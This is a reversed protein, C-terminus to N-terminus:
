QPSAEIALALAEGGGICIAAMGRKLGRARLAYLLTTLIRAGSAGIPHGLACAGGNVNVREVPLRLAQIAALTVVAFAENIEFLDVSEFTWGCAQELKQLAEVPALTFRQPERAHAAAAQVTALTRWGQKEAFSRRTLVLMAAGDSISSANAATVSGNKVFAGSLQRIKALDAKFPQEDQRVLTEQKRSVVKVPVIEKEFSGDENARRAENLSRIAFDDMQERSIQLEQATEEAFVGMSKHAEGEQPYADELGDCLMHDILRGHGMRLGGRAHHLLYPAGSMSEMGGALIATQANHQLADCAMMVTKLGSGCMKNVTTAGVSDPLGAARTAQRAPAQGQGASLVCGILSESFLNESVRSAADSNEDGSKEVPLTIDHDHDHDHNQDQLCAKICCSALYPATVPSLCGQFSGIPTRRAAVIVVPDKQDFTHLM